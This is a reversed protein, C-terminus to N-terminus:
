HKEQEGWTKEIFQDRGSGHRYFKYRLPNKQYFDQHYDEAPYFVKLKSIETVIPKSFKGSKALKEKSELAAKRQEDNHYFIESRYQRGHDVFQGNDQTPDINKWFVDLLENYSTLKPDFYIQIAEAHATTGSSVQEYTPNVENGGTYGAITKKVGKLEDYPPEMCWFCGGAFTATQLTPDNPIELTMKKEAYGLTVLGLSSLFVTIALGRLPRLLGLFKHSRWARRQHTRSSVQIM